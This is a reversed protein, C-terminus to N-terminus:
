FDGAVYLTTATRTISHVDGNTTWLPLLVAPNPPAPTPTRTATPTSPSLDQKVEFSDVYWGRYNNNQSDVTNFTLQFRISMGKYASLDIKVPVWTSMPDYYLARIMTYAGGNASVWVQR